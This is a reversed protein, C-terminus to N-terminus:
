PAGTWVGCAISNRAACGIIDMLWRIELILTQWVPYTGLFKWWGIAAWFMTGGVLSAPLIWIMGLYDLLTAEDFSIQTADIATDDLLRAVAKTAASAAAAPRGHMIGAMDPGNRVALLRPGLDDVGEFTVGVMANHLKAIADKLGQKVIASHREYSKIDDEGIAEALGKVSEQFEAGSIPDLTKGDLELRGRNNEVNLFSHIKDVATKLNLAVALLDEQNEQADDLYALAEKMSDMTTEKSLLESKLHENVLRRAFHNESAGLNRKQEKVLATGLRTMVNELSNVESRPQRGGRLAAKNEQFIFM